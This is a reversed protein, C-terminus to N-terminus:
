RAQEVDAVFEGGTDFADRTKADFIADGYEPVCGVTDTPPLAPRRALPSRRLTPLPRM